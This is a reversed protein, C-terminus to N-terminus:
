MIRKWPASKMPDFTKGRKARKIRHKKYKGTLFEARYEAVSEEFNPDFGYDTVRFSGRKTLDKAHHYELRFSVDQLTKLLLIVQEKDLRELIHQQFTMEIRGDPPITWSDGVCRSWLERAESGGYRIELERGQSRTGIWSKPPPFKSYALSEDTEIAEEGSETEATTPPPSLSNWTGARVITPLKPLPNSIGTPSASASNRGSEVAESAKRGQPNAARADRELYSTIPSSTPPGRVQQSELSGNRATTQLSLERQGTSLNTQPLSGRSRLTIKAGNAIGKSIQAAIAPSTSPDRTFNTIKADLNRIREEQSELHGDIRKLVSLIELLLTDSGPFDNKITDAAAM